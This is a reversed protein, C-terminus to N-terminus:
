ILLSYFIILISFIHLFNIVNFENTLEAQDKIIALLTNHGTLSKSIKLGSLINMLIIFEEKTVSDKLVKKSEELFFEEIEKTLLNSNSSSIIKFRDKLFKMVKDRTEEEGELIQGFLALFFSKTDYNALTTLAQNVLNLEIQDESLLLQALVDSIKAVFEKRDRCINPM